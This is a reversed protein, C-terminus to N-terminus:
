RAATDFPDPDEIPMPHRVAVANAEKRTGEHLPKGHHRDFLFSAKAIWHEAVIENFSDEAIVAPLLEFSTGDRPPVDDFEMGDVLREQERVTSLEILLQAPQDRLGVAILGFVQDFVIAFEEHFG